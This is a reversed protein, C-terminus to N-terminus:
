SDRPSPSTYLLCSYLPTALLTVGHAGYDYGAGRAVHSWRMGHSQVIGKPLGTTGSSYIINFPAAPSVQVPQPRAGDPLLWREFSEGPATGDLAICRGSPTANGLADLAADDVFLLRAQADGLMSAFSQPTVSPALPAVVAGARLAGLFLAAYRPSSNACIAISDGPGVGDRQLTAAVRDMLADLAAYSLREDGQILAPHGPRALAHERVLDSITRFPTLDPNHQASNMAPM